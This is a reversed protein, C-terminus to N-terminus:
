NNGYNQSFGGSNNPGPHLIEQLTPSTHIDVKLLEMVSPDNVPHHWVTGKPNLYGSKGSEMYKILDDGSSYGLEKALKDAFAPDNKLNNMLNNNASARHQARTLGSIPQKTLVPYPSRLQNMGTQIQGAGNMVMAGGGTVGIVGFTVNGIANAGGAGIASYDGGTCAGSESCYNIYKITSDASQIGNYVAVTGLGMGLSGLGINITGAAITYAGGKATLGALGSGVASGVPMMLGATILFKSGEGLYGMYIDTANSVNVATQRDVGINTLLNAKYNITQGTNVTYNYEQRQVEYNVAAAGTGIAGVCLLATAGATFIAGFLGIGCAVAAGGSWLMMENRKREAEEEAKRAQEKVYADQRARFSSDINEGFVSQFGAKMRARNEDKSLSPDGFFRVFGDLLDGNVSNESYFKNVETNIFKEDGNQSVLNNFLNTGFSGTKNYANDVKNKWLDLAIIEGNLYEINAKLVPIQSSYYDRAAVAGYYNSSAVHYQQRKTAYIQGKEQIKGSIYTGVTAYDMPYGRAALRGIVGGMQVHDNFVVKAAYMSWWAANMTARLGPIAADLKSVNGEYEVVLKGDDDRRTVMAGRLDRTAVDLQQKGTMCSQYQGCATSKPSSVSPCSQNNANCFGYMDIDNVPNDNVFMYRHRSAPDTTDGRYSDLKNWVGLNPNYFRSGYYYNDHEVDLEKTSYSKSNWDEFGYAGPYAAEYYDKKATGNFNFAIQELEGYSSFMNLNYVYPSLVEPRPDIVGNDFTFQSRYSTKGIISALGDYHYYSLKQNSDPIVKGTYTELIGPKNDNGSGNNCDYWNTDDEHEGNGKCVDLTPFFSREAIHDSAIIRMGSKYYNTHVDFFEKPDPKKQNKKTPEPVEMRDIYESLSEWSKGDYFYDIRKIGYYPVSAMIRERNSKVQSDNGSGNDCDFWNQDDQHEGNGKCISYDTNNIKAIRRGFADYEYQFNFSVYDRIKDSGGNYVASRKTKSETNILENYKNYSYKIYEATDKSKKLTMNGAVDYTYTNQTDAVLQNAANYSYNTKSNLGSQMNLYEYQLRNGVADYTFNETSDWVEKGDVIKNNTTKVLRRLPDYGYSRVTTLIQTKTDKNPKECDGPKHGDSGDHDQNECQAFDDVMGIITEKVKDGNANLQFSYKAFDQVQDTEGKLIRRNNVEVLRDANDYSQIIETLNPNSQKVLNLNADYEFRTMLTQPYEDSLEDESYVLTLASLQNNKNYDYKAVRGDPYAISTRNGVADYSYSSTKGRSDTTKIIQYIKDYTYSQANSGRTATIINGVADYTYISKQSADATDINVKRNLADYVFTVAQNKPDVQKVINGVADYEYKWISGVQNTEQTKRNLLDYQYSSARGNANVEKLLNGVEDYEYASNGGIADIVNTLRSLLDYKYQTKNNIADYSAVIRGAADYEFKETNLLPDSKKILLNRSDYEFTLETGKPTTQKVLNSNADYSFRYTEGGALRKISQRDRSDYEYSVTNGRADTLAVLNNNKDYTSHTKYGLANTTVIQNYVKDYGYSTTNGKEDTLSLLNGTKDYAFTKKGNLPNVTAVVRDVTDYTYLNKRGLEDTQTLINGNADYTFTKANGFTDTAKTINGRKDYEFSTTAGRPDIVKVKRGLVDYEYKTTKEYPDIVSTVLDRKDYVFKYNGGIKDTQSILNKNADYQFQMKQGTPDIEALVNGIADYQYKSVNGRPDKSEVVRGLADYKKSDKSGDAYTTEIQQYIQNYTFATTFGRANTLSLVNGQKDYTFQSVAGNAATSKVINNTADYEYSNANGNKDTVKTIRGVVDYQTTQTGGAPDRETVQRNLKDYEFTTVFGRPNKMSIVNGAADYSYETAGGDPDIEKVKRGIQDYFIQTASNAAPINSKIMRSGADYDYFVELGARDLQKTINGLADYEYKTQNGKFDTTMVTRGLADYASTTSYGLPNITKTARGLKDYEYRTKNGAKDTYEKLNGNASYVFYESQGLADTRKILRNLKDYEYLTVNGNKDTTKTLNGSLDYEFNTANGRGDVERITRHLGDHAYQVSSNNEGSFKKLNGFLDYEYRRSNGLADTEKIKNGMLDYELNSVNGRPDILKSLKNRSEYEQRLINGLEDTQSILNDNNDYAFTTKEGAFNTQAVLRGLIDYEYVAQDGKANQVAVLKDQSNYFYLTENGLADIEKTLNGKADYEYKKIGGMPDTEKTKRGSSDYEYTYLNNEFDRYSVVNGVTNYTLTKSQGVANTLKVLRGSVDYEYKTESNRGDIESIRNDNLDYAYKFETVPNNDKDFFSEKVVRNNSDYQYKTINGNRDKQSLKNNNKDFTFEEVGGNPYIIKTINENADAIYQTVAGAEDTQKSLNGNKDYEYTLTFGKADTIKTVKGLSNYEMRTVRDLADTVSIKNGALDYEYKLFAGTASDKEEKLQGKENYVYEKSDGNPNITKVLLNKDNYLYRITQGQQNTVKSPKGAATYEIIVTGTVDTVKTPLNKNNYETERIYGDPRVEKVVNGETDRSYVTANGGAEVEKLLQGSKSYEYKREQGNPQKDAVLYLQSNHKLERVGGNADKFRTIYNGTEIGLINEKIYEMVVPNGMADLQQVVRGEADYVNNVFAKGEADTIKTIRGQADYEYTWKESNAKAVQHLRGDFNYTYSVTRGSQDKVTTLLNSGSYSFEMYKGFDDFVKKLNGAADYEFHISRGTANTIKEIKGWNTSPTSPSSSMNRDSNFLYVTKDQSTYEFKYGNEPGYRKLTGNNFDNARSFTATFSNPDTDSEKFTEGRGDSFKVSYQQEEHALIRINYSHSWGRGNPGMYEDLANYFREFKLAPGDQTQLDVDTNRHVFNGTAANVPEAIMGAPFMYGYNELYRDLPDIVPPDWPNDPDDPRVDTASRFKWNRVNFTSVPSEWVGTWGGANTKQQEGNFTRGDDFPNVENGYKYEGKYMTFEINPATTNGTEGLMGIEQGARITKGVDAPTLVMLGLHSYRTKYGNGHDIVVYRGLGENYDSGTGGVVKEVVGDSIVHVRTDLSWEPLFRAFDQARYGFWSRHLDTNVTLIMSKRDEWDENESWPLWKGYKDFPDYNLSAVVNTAPVAIAVAAAIVAFMPLKVSFPLQVKKTLFPLIKKLM